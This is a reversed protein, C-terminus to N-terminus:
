RQQPGDDPPRPANWARYEDLHPSVARHWVTGILQVAPDDRTYRPWGPTCGRIFGVWAAHMRTALDVPLQETGLLATPGLLEPLDVHDFVFPLEMLHCAGLRGDLANSAWTFEYLYTAAADAAAPGAAARGDAIARVGAGFMGDGLLAVNLRDLSEQPRTRRYAAVLREPDHHFRAATALLAGEDLPTQAGFPTVYLSSEESNSGILLAVRGGRGGAIGDAPQQDLVLSFPTIGGLPDFGGGAEIRVDSLAPLAGVLEEDDVGSFAAADAEIELARCLASTVVDAQAPTFAATGSGSEIIASRFTTHARGSALVAAVLIGGASQGALTVASPDGGFAAINEQVWELCAVVDLLGRNDPADALHLFGAAGLRYNVGVFVVGDRAFASGDYAPVRNSGALFAGGHVFLVVPAARAAEAPAWINVTLYDDGRVWGPSFFPSLDLAGMRGRPPQPATAGFRTADRVGPWSPHPVPADFRLPGVPAAAYPVDLFVRAQSARVGRVVGLRTPVDVPAGSIRQEASAAATHDSM